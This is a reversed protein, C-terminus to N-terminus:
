QTRLASPITLIAFGHSSASNLPQSSEPGDEAYAKRRSVGGPIESMAM